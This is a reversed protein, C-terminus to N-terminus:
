LEEEPLPEEMGALFRTDAIARDLVDKQMPDMAPRYNRDLADLIEWADGAMRRAPDTRLRSTKTASM